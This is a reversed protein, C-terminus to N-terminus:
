TQRADAQRLMIFSLQRGTDGKEGRHSFFADRSCSTCIGASFINDPPVGADLLQFRNAAPLDFMWRGEKECRTFFSEGRKKDFDRFVVEDVEYCCPGIAPGIVALIDAPTSAFEKVFVGIAKATIGLSTGKWGAHVAGVVRRARDVLFVPVCDATKVGVPMGPMASIIGDYELSGGYRWDRTKEDIVLLRDGHVQTVTILNKEQIDFASCLIERNRSLHEERDGSRAGFNLNALSGESIGGWRTCFAHTIFGCEGLALCELYRVDDRRSFRFADSTGYRQGPNESIM